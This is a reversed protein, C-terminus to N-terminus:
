GDGVVEARDGEGVGLESDSYVAAAMLGALLLGAAGVVGDGAEVGV